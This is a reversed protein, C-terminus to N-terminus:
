LTRPCIYRAGLILRETVHHLDDLSGTNMVQSDTQTYLYLTESIDLGVLNHLGHRVLWHQFPSLEPEVEPRRITAITGSYISVYRWMMALENEFRIDDVVIRAEKDGLATSLIKQELARVWIDPDMLRRGWGTGLAIAAQRYSKGGLLPIPTEKESGELQAETLGITRLMDKVGDAFRFRVFGHQECLFKAVESKGASKAGLLGVIQVM